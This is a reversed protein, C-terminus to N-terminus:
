LAKQDVSVSGAAFKIRCSHRLSSYFASSNRSRGSRDSSDMFNVEMDRMLKKNFDDDIRDNSRHNKLRLAGIKQLVDCKQM